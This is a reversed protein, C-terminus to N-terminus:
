IMKETNSHPLDPGKNSVEMIQMNAEKSIIKVKNQEALQKLM